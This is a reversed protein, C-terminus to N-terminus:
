AAEGRSRAFQYFSISLYLRLFGINARELQLEIRGASRLRIPYLRKWAFTGSELKISHFSNSYFPQKFISASALCRIAELESATSTVIQLRSNGITALCFWKSSAARLGFRRSGASLSVTAPEVSLRVVAATKVVM